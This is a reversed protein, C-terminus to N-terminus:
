RSQASTAPARPIPRHEGDDLIVERENHTQAGSTRRPGSMGM